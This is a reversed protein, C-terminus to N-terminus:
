EADEPFDPTGDELEDNREDLDDDQAVPDPTSLYEDGAGEQSPDGNHQPVPAQAPPPGNRLRNEITEFAARADSDRGVFDDAIHVLGIACDNLTAVTQRLADYVLDAATLAHVLVQPDGLQAARGNMEDIAGRLHGGVASLEAAQQPFDHRGAQYLARLDSVIQGQEAPTTSM